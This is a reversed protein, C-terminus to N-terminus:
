MCCLLFAVLIQLSFAGAVGSFGWSTAPTTGSIKLNLTASFAIIAVLLVVCNLGTMIVAPTRTYAPVRLKHVLVGIQVCMAVVAVCLTAVLVVMYTHFDSSVFWPGGWKGNTDGAPLRYDNLTVTTKEGNFHVRSYVPGIEAYLTDGLTVTANNRSCLSLLISGLGLFLVVVAVIAPPRNM